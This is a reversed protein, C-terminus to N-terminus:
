IVCPILSKIASFTVKVEYINSEEAFEKNTKDPNNAYLRNEQEYNM